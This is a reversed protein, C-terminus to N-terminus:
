DNGYDDRESPPCTPPFIRRFKVGAPARNRLKAMMDDGGRGNLTHVSIDPVWRNHEHMWELVAYGTKETYGGRDIGPAGMYGAPRQKAYHEDALDHDLSCHEIPHEQLIAIAEDATKAWFDYGWPPKRIDDLWLKM